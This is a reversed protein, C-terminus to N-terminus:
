LAQFRKLTGYNKLTSASLSLGMELNEENSARWDLDRVVLEYFFSRYDILFVLFMKLYRQRQTTFTCDGGGAGRVWWTMWLATPLDSFRATGLLLITPMIQGGLQSLTLQDALCGRPSRCAQTVKVRGRFKFISAVCNFISNRNSIMWIM